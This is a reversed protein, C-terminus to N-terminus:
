DAKFLSHFLEEREVASCCMKCGGSCRQQRVPLKIVDAKRAKKSNREGLPSWRYTFSAYSQIGLYRLLKETEPLNRNGTVHTSLSTWDTNPLHLSELELGPV